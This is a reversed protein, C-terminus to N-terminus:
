SSLSRAARMGASRRSVRALAFGGASLAVLALAGGAIPVVPIPAAAPPPGQQPSSWAVPVAGSSNSGGRVEFPHRAPTGAAPAGNAKTQTAILVGRGARANAPVTFQTEIRGRSDAREEALVPGRRSNLRIAVASADARTTFNFGKVTVTTGAAGSKKGPKITALNACAFATAAVVLPATVAALAGLVWTRRRKEDM